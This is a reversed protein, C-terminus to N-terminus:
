CDKARKLKIADMVENSERSVIKVQEQSIDYSKFGHAQLQWYLATQTATNFPGNYSARTEVVPGLEDIDTVCIRGLLMMLVSAEHKTLSISVEHEDVIEKKVKKKLRDADHYSGGNISDVVEGDSNVFPGAVVFVTDPLFMMVQWIDGHKQFSHIKHTEGVHTAESIGFLVSNGCDLIPIVKKQSAGMGGPILVEEIEFDQRAISRRRMDEILDETAKLIDKIIKVSM